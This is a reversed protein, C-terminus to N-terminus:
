ASVTTQGQSPKGASVDRILFHAFAPLFILAAVANALFMITLLIGMDIQFQLGSLVWTAVSASLAIGTVIVAKGTQHLTNAYAERMPMRKVKVNEELVSFIYIGYDVGIGAAFAAVPLTAVTQGIGLWVMIAYTFVSVAALPVVICIIGAIGRFSAYVCVIIALYLWFLVTFETKKIVDNTAALVGVNGGALHFTVPDDPKVGSNVKDITSIIQDITTARHDKTFIYTPIVSCDENLLGTSTTFQQGALILGDQSRPLQMWRPNSENYKAWVQKDMIPLSVVSVIGPQNQMYWGFRNIRNMVDYDICGNKKTHAYIQLVDVGISYNKTIFESDMNYRSDPKLAPVGAHLEGIQLDRAVWWAGAWTTAMVVLVTIAVRRNTLASMVKWVPQFKEDRRHQYARFRERNGIHVYSLLCPLLIKKCIVIAVLGFMANIAMEQVIGIPILLITGFGIINTVLATIGPIVLRRYTARSADFSNLGHDAVELLWFSTIQIGHSVSIALVLFPVLIAFPDLGYGALKFLGMEWIVALLGCSLPYLAVVFSGMYWSLVLWVLFVTIAFFTVVELSADAVDGIVKAFGIIEVNIDPNYDPNKSEAVTLASAEFDKEITEGSPGIATGHVSKFRFFLGRPDEYVTSIITGAKLVGDDSALKVDYRTQKILRGRINEFNHATQIYDLKEHTRPNVDVLEASVLASRQDNSVLRGIISAKAINDKVKALSEVDANFGSPIVNGGQFGGEVVELYRVNPTFISSVRTRDVGSLYFVSDTATKLSALFAGDYINKEPAKQSVALLVTNGGGFQEQHQKLIKIYPHDKPLQKEFGSDLRLHLAQWGLFITLLGIVTLTLPRKSFILPETIKVFFTSFWGRPDGHM